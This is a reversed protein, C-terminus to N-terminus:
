QRLIHRSDSGMGLEELEFKAADVWEPSDWLMSLPVWADEKGVLQDFTLHNMLWENWITDIPIAEHLGSADSWTAHFGLSKKALRIPGLLFYMVTDEVRADDHRELATVPGGIDRGQENPETRAERRLRRQRCLELFWLDIEGHFGVLANLYATDANIM